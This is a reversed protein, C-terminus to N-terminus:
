VGSESSQAKRALDLGHTLAPSSRIEKWTLGVSEIADTPDHTYCYEHNALEDAFMEFIFGEGTTDETIAKELEAAHKNVMDKFRESDSKKLFGGAGTSCIKDKDTEPNLGFSEMGKKFGKADFAYFIPFAEFEIRQKKQLEIYKNM